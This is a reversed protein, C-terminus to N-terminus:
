VLSVGSIVSRRVGRALEGHPEPPESPHAPQPHFLQLVLPSRMSRSIVRPPASAVTVEALAPDSTRPKPITCDNSPEEQSTLTQSVRHNDENLDNGNPAYASSM